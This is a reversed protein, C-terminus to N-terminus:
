PYLSLKSYMWDIIEKIFDKDIMDTIHIDKDDITRGDYINNSYDINTVGSFIARDKFIAKIYTELEDEYTEKFDEHYAITVHIANLKAENNIQFIKKSWNCYQLNDIRYNNM